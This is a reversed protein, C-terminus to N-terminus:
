PRVAEVAMMGWVAGLRFSSARQVHFSTSRLHDLFTDLTYSQRYAPDLRKLLVDLLQCALYDRCWDLIVLRGGPKLVRRMEQLAERPASFYHFASASVVVDFRSEAFPLAAADAQVFRVNGAAHLNTRAEALMKPSLDVGVMERAGERTLVRQEFLGTGCGVDLVRETPHIAAWEQLVSLTRALYRQWIWDYFPAWRDYQQQIIHEVPQQPM